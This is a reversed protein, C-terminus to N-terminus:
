KEGKCYRLTFTATFPPSSFGEPFPGGSDKDLVIEVDGWCLAQMEEYGYTRVVDSARSCLASQLALALINSVTVEWSPTGELFASTLIAENMMKIIHSTIQLQEERM